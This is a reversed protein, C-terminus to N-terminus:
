ISGDKSFFVRMILYLTQFSATVFSSQKLTLSVIQITVPLKAFRLLIPKSLFRHIRRGNKHNWTSHRVRLELGFLM